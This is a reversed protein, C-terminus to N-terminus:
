ASILGMIGVDGFLPPESDIIESISIRCTNPIAKTITDATFRRFVTVCVSAVGGTSYLKSTSRRSVSTLNKPLIYQM